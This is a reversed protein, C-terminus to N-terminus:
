VALNVSKNHFPLIRSCKAISRRDKRTKNSIKLANLDGTSKRTIYAERRGSEREWSNHFPRFKKRFSIWLTIAVLAGMILEGLANSLGQLNCAPASALDHNFVCYNQYIGYAIYAGFAGFLSVFISVIVALELLTKEILRTKSAEKLLGM